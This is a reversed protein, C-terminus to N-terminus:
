AFFLDQAKVLFITVYKKRTPVPKKKGIREPKM